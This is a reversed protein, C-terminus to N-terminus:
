RAIFNCVSGRDWLSVHYILTTYNKGDTRTDTRVEALRKPIFLSHLIPLFRHPHQLALPSEYSTHAAYFFRTIVKTEEPRTLPEELTGTRM